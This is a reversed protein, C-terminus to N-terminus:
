EDSDSDSPYEWNSGIKQRKSSIESSQKRKGKRLRDDIEKKNREELEKQEKLRKNILDINEMDDSIMPATPSEPRKPLTPPQIYRPQKYNELKSRMKENIIWQPNVKSEYLIRIFDKEGKLVKEHTIANMLLSVIDSDEIPRGDSGKLKFNDDYSNNEAIKLVIRMLNHIKGSDREIRRKKNMVEPQEINGGIMNKSKFSDEPVLVMKRSYEM